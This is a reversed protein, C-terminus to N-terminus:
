EFMKDYEKKSVEFYKKDFDWYKELIKYEAKLPLIFRVLDEGEKKVRILNTTKPNNGKLRVVVNDRLDNLEKEGVNKSDIFTTIEYYKSTGSEGNKLKNYETEDLLYSRIVNYSYFGKKISPYKYAGDLSNINFVYYDKNEFKIKTFFLTYFNTEDCNNQGNNTKNEVWEGKLTDYKWGTAETLSNSVKEFQIKVENTRPQSFLLNTFSFVLILFVKKM